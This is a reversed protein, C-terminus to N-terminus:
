IKELITKINKQATKTKLYNKDKKIAIDIDSYVGAEDRAFSGFLAVESIGNFTLSNKLESLFIIIQEKTARM